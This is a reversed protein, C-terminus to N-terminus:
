AAAPEEVLGLAELLAQLEARAAVHSMSMQVGLGEEKLDLLTLGKLFLERFVVRESFGGVVRFGLRRSLADLVDGVLRKNRADVHSLRNRLVIWDVSRRDRKARQKKQEWVLVAYHSPRRVEMTEGDVMALVDLDIFSDNLPTVVVDAHSHALQSLFTDNGPTDIVVFHRGESARGLAARFRAQEDMEAMEADRASSREVAEHSPIPLALNKAEATRRRNDIFRSLTGQRADLDLTAVGLGGRMLAVVLHMAITSKGSGGKENGVVIVRAPASPSANM